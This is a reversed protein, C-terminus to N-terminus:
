QGKLLTVFILTPFKIAFVLGFPRHYSRLLLIFFVESRNLLLTGHLLMKTRVNFTVLCVECLLGLTQYISFKTVTKYGARIHINDFKIM